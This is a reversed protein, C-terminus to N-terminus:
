KVSNRLNQRPNASGFLLFESLDQLPEDQLQKLRPKRSIKLLDTIAKSFDQENLKALKLSGNLYKSAKNWNRNKSLVVPVGLVLSNIAIGSAGRNSYPLIMVSTKKIVYQLEQKTIYRDIELIGDYDWSRSVDKWEQSQKGILALKIEEGFVAKLNQFTSYILQPNKRLDLFGAITILRNSKGIEVNFIKELSNREGIKNKFQFLDM